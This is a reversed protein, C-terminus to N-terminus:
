LHFTDTNRLSETRVASYVSEVETIFVLGTSATYPFLRQKNQSGNLVCAIHALVLTLTRRTVHRQRYAKFHYLLTM